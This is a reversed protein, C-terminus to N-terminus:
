GKPTASEQGADVNSVHGNSRREDCQWQGRVRRAPPAIHSSYAADLRACDICIGALPGTIRRYGACSKSDDLTM